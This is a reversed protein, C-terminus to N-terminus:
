CKQSRSFCLLCAFASSVQFIHFVTPQPNVLGMKHEATYAVFADKAQWLFVPEQLLVDCICACGSQLSSLFWHVM